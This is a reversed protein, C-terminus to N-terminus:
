KGGELDKLQVILKQKANTFYEDWNAIGSVTTYTDSQKIGHLQGKLEKIRLRLKEMEAQLLKKETIADSKNIFFHGKELNELIEKVRKIDNKEHAASLEAFLKTALEKQEESVVDPHCLKSAKRYKDKLEKKEDDTLSIIEEDKSAEYEKHYTNYDEEAEQQQPTGKAKEKRFKLIKIILEGLEKNHRVGFEHVLKELDAKEDSLNNIEAELSKIEFKLADIEPDAYIALKHHKNIFEEIATVAKSYSKEKLYIIINELGPTLGLQELKSIHANIEDEEELSILSKILELRKIIKPLTINQVDPM